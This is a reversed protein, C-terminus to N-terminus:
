SYYRSFDLERTKLALAAIERANEAGDVVIRLAMRHMWDEIMHDRECWHRGSKLAEILAEYLPVDHMPAGSWVIIDDDRFEDKTEEDFMSDGNWIGTAIGFQDDSYIRVFAHVTVNEPLNDTTQHIKM